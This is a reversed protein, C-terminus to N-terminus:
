LNQKELFWDEVEVICPKWGNTLEPERSIHPILSRPIWVKRGNEGPPMTSFHIAGPTIGVQWLKVTRTESM